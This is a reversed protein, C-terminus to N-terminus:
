KSALREAGASVTLARACHASERCCTSVGQRPRGREHEGSLMPRKAAGPDQSYWPTLGMNNQLWDVKDWTVQPVRAGKDAARWPLANSSRGAAYSELCSM